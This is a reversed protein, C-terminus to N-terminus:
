VSQENRRVIFLEHVALFHFVAKVEAKEAGGAATTVGHVFTELRLEVAKQTFVATLVRQRLAVTHALHGRRCRAAAVAVELTQADTIRKQSRINCYELRARGLLEVVTLLALDADAARGNHEAIEVIGLLGLLDHHRVRVAGHPYMRAVEAAHVGVAKDEYLASYLAHYGTKVSMFNERHLDLADDTHM